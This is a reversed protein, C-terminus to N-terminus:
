PLTAIRLHGALLSRCFAAVHCRTRGPPNWRRRADAPAQRRGVRPGWEAPVRLESRRYALRRESTRWNGNPPSLCRDCPAPRLAIDCSSKACDLVGVRPGVCSADAGARSTDAGCIAHRGMVLGIPHRDGRRSRSNGSRPSLCRDCAASLLAIDAKPKVCRHHRLRKVVGSTAAGCRDRGRRFFRTSRHRFTRHTGTM